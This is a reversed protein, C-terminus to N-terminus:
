RALTGSRATSFGYAALAAVIALVYLSQDAYWANLNFTIPSTNLVFTVYLAVILTVLGYSIMVWILVALGGIGIAFWSTYVHAGRPVIMPAIILAALVAALIPRRVLARLVALLLLFLLGRFMAYPLAGLYGALAVRGGLLNNAITEIVLSPRVDWGLSSVLARESAVFLAWFCGVCVGVLLHQGVIPDRWRLSLARSWTILMDPWYRRALPELAIYFLGLLAAVGIAQLGALCINLLETNFDSVHKARLLWAAFQIVVVLIALRMAGTRDSRGARYNLWALPIAVITILLFVIRLSSTVVTERADM